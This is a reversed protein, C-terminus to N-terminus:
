NERGTTSKKTNLRTQLNLNIGVKERLQDDKERLQEQLNFLRARMEQLETRNELSFFDVSNRKSRSTLFQVSNM